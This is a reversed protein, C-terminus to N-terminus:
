HCVVYSLVSSSVDREHVYSWDASSYGDWDVLYEREGKTVRHTIISRVRYVDDHILGIIPLDVAAASAAAATGAM